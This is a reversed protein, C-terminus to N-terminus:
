QGEVLGVEIWRQAIAAADRSAVEETVEYEDLLFRSLDELSFDKGEVAKWLYAASSNLSVIKNFNVQAPGEGTVIFEEGLPRLVFGDIIRM